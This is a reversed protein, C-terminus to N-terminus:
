VLFQHYYSTTFRTKSQAKPIRLDGRSLWQTQIPSVGAGLRDIALRNYKKAFEQWHPEMPNSTFPDFSFSVGPGGSYLGFPKRLKEGRNIFYCAWGNPAFGTQKQFDMTFQYSEILVRMLNGLDHEYYQFDLRNEGEEPRWYENVFDVRSYVLDKPTPVVVGVGGYQISLRRARRFEESAPQSREPTQNGKGARYRENFAAVLQDLKINVLLADGKQRREIVAEALARPTDFKVITVSSRCLTAPRIEVLCELVIGLLGYSSKFAFFRASDKQENLVCLHGSDDVYTVELVHASFYGPGDISSDKTDGVAVSGVTAEGIEAQYPIEVNRLQLWQHLKKLRCGAQVRVAQLGSALTEIGIVEDLKRLCVLTGADNKFTDTVSLMSGVPHVPSPFQEIDKVIEQVDSYLIPEVYVAPTTNRSRGWNWYKRITPDILGKVSQSPLSLPAYAPVAPNLVQSQANDVLGLFSLSAGLSTLGIGQLVQRRTVQCVIGLTDNDPYLERQNDDSSVDRSNRKNM